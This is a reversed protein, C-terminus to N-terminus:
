PLDIQPFWNETYRKTGRTLDEIATDIDDWVFGFTRDLISYVRGDEDIALVAMAEHEGLPILTKGLALGVDPCLEADGIALETLRLDLSVWPSDGVSITTRFGGYKEFASIAAAHAELGISRLREHWALVDAYDAKGKWGLEQPSREASGNVGRHRRALSHFPWAVLMWTCPDIASAALTWWWFAPYSLAFYTGLILGLAGVCPILSGKKRLLIRWNAVTALVGVALLVLGSVQRIFEFM